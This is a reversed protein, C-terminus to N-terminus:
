LGDFDGVFTGHPFLDGLLDNKFTDAPPIVAFRDAMENFEDAAAAGWLLPNDLM